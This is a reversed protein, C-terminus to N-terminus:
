KVAVRALAPRVASGPSGAKILAENWEAPSADWRMVQAQPHGAVREPLAGLSSVVIATGAALANSLTYSYTEPVQAPFWVVDPREAAILSMLDEDAYQGHISLPAAPWQPVPETTSGIIRFALPLRRARADEACAAVVRLGKEPSLNGLTAVRIVRGPEILPTEPHPLVLAEVDPFYRAIRQAVDHTPALVRDAGRLLTGLAARWSAIDLDWQGPRRSLCAACGAADPEGCYRGEETNLHYQPCIAYYDHLTCDYPVGADRPLDLVAKPLGHVHHFHMRVLGLSRLLAALVASEAPLTFFASFDEGEKLWSLKVREPTAPQLLVVNCRESMMESLDDIHRRIGGGWGHAVFLVLQRESEALRLLDVRRQFPRVPDRTAFEEREALYRPYLRGLALEARAALDDAVASGFSTEGWHWVYVNAALVHRFGSGSARLCFDQEVGYDGGLPGGDFRGVADLSARRVLICPGRAVPVTATLGENARRFLLDLSALTHEAPMANRVGTRPYGAIGGYNTFPVVTAVDGPSDCSRAVAVLRDLWDNAVEADSHLIVLDREPHLGAGRNVAATFGEHQPQEILTLQSRAARERLWRVLEAEPCADNVVVLEFPTEQSLSATSLVSEICRRTAEAGKHVPVIVDIPMM